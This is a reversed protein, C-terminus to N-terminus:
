SKSLNTNHIHKKKKKTNKKKEGKETTPVTIM